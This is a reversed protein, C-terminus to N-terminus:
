IVGAAWRRRVFEIEQPQPGKRVKHLLPKRKQEVIELHEQPIYQISSEDLEPIMGGESDPSIFASSGKSKKSNGTPM